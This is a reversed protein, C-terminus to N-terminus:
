KYSKKKEKDIVRWLIVRNIVSQSEWFHIYYFIQQLLSSLHAFREATLIGWEERIYKVRGIGFREKQSEDLWRQKDQKKSYNQLM